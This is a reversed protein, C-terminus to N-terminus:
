ASRAPRGRGGRPAPSAGARRAACRASADVLDLLHQQLGRDVAAHGVGVRREPDGLLHQRPPCSRPMDSRPRRRTRSNGASPRRGGSRASGLDSVARRRCLQPTRLSPGRMRRARRRALRVTAARTWVMARSAAGLRRDAALALDVDVDPSTPSARSAAPQAGARAGPSAWGPPSSSSWPARDRRGRHGPRSSDRRAACAACCRARADVLPPRVPAHRVARRGARGPRDPAPRRAPPAGPPGRGAARHAAHPADLGADASRTRACCRWTTPAPRGARDVCSRAVLLEGRLELEVDPCSARPGRPRGAAPRRVDRHRHLRGVGPGRPRRRAAGHRGRRPRRRRARHARARRVAARGRDPEVRRTTRTFCRSASSASSSSSRSPCRRSPSTCGSARRPRLAAGRRAGRVLAPAATGHM